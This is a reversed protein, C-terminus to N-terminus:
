QDNEQQYMQVFRGPVVGLATELLSILAGILKEQDETTAGSNNEDTLVLTASLIIQMYELPFPCSFEGSDVGACVIDALIPSLMELISRMMKEHMLANEARHLEEILSDSVQNRIQMSRFVGLLKVSPRADSSQVTRAHEGIMQIFRDNIADLLMEKSEFYHYFTGKAIGIECIIDNVTTNAYGKKSFLDSAVDLIETRREDHPKVIRMM